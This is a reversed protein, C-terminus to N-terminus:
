KDDLSMQHHVWGFMRSDDLEGGLLTPLMSPPDMYALLEKNDPYLAIRERMKEKLFMRVINFVWQMIAPPEIIFARKLPIGVCKGLFSMAASMDTVSLIRSLSVINMFSMGVFCGIMILGRVQVYVNRSMRDIVMVQCRGIPHDRNFDQDTSELMLKARLVLITRGQNDRHELAQIFNNYREFEKPTGGVLHPHERGFRVLNVTNEVANKVVFKRVRLFRILNVDSVDEIRDEPPLNAILERMEQLKQVRTEPTEGYRQFAFEKLDEPLELCDYEADRASSTLSTAAPETLTSSSSNLTTTM